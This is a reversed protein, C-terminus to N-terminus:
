NDEGHSRYAYMDAPIPCATRMRSWTGVEVPDAHTLVGDVVTRLSATTGSITLAARRDVGHWTMVFGDEKVTLGPLPHGSYWKTAMELWLRLTRLSPRHPMPSGDEMTRRRTRSWADARDSLAWWSEHRSRSVTGLTPIPRETIRVRGFSDIRMKRGNRSLCGDVLPGITPHALFGRRLVEHEPLGNQYQLYLDGDDDLNVEVEYISSAERLVDMRLLLRGQHHSALHAPWWYLKGHGDDPVFVGRLGEGYHGHTTRAVMRAITWSSPDIAVGAMFRARDRELGRVLDEPAFERRDRSGMIHWVRPKSHRM